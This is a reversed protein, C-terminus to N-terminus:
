DPRSDDANNKGKLDAYEALAEEFELGKSFQKLCDTQEAPTANMHKELSDSPHGRHRWDAVTWRWRFELLEDETIGFYPATTNNRAGQDQERLGKGPEQKRKGMRADKRHRMEHFRRLDALLPGWRDKDSLVASIRAGASAANGSGKVHDAVMRLDGGTLGKMELERALDVRNKEYGLHIAYSCLIEETSERDM